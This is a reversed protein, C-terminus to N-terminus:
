IFLLYLGGIILLTAIIKKVITSPTMKEELLKPYKWSLSFVIVLLFIYQLGQLANVLAVSSSIAIAYNVMIFSIAGAFQGVLFLAGADKKPAKIEAKIDRRNISSILLMMAGLFSGVRTWVFGSIFDQQVFVYKNITYSIAFLITAAAAYVYAKRNSPKSNKQLSVLVTGAIIIAFAALQQVGLTEGLFILALLFIFIPQLGGMFPTIRSAENSALAKFMYLLAFTFLIGAVIAIIIQTISYWHFGFPILILAGLSLTAIFFAYVAPNPIKKSLLFKDVVVAVANLFYAIITVLVWSM